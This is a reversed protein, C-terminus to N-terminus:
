IQTSQIATETWRSLKSLRKDLKICSHLWNNNGFRRPHAIFSHVVVSFRSFYDNKLKEQMDSISISELNLTALWERSLNTHRWDYKDGVLRDDKKRSMQKDTTYREQSGSAHRRYNEARLLFDCITKPEFHLTALRERSLRTALWEQILNATVLSCLEAWRSSLIFVLGTIFM